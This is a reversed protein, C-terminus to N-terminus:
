SGFHTIQDSIGLGVPRIEQDLRHAAARTPERVANRNGTFRAKALLRAIARAIKAGGTASPEIVSVFDDDSRCVLRLDIAPLGRVFAERLICDNLIALAISALRRFRADPFAPEYITCIAPHNFSSAARAERQFRELAIRDQSAEAPLFKLALHRGLRTDEAKYVVGMGGAGIQEVVRYHSIVRGIM